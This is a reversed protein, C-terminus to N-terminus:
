TKTFSCSQQRDVNASHACEPAPREFEPKRARPMRAASATLRTAELPCGRRSTRPELSGGRQGKEAEAAVGPRAASNRSSTRCGASGPEDDSTSRRAAASSMGAPRAHWGADLPRSCTAPARAPTSAAPDRGSGRHRNAGGAVRVQQPMQRIRREHEPRLAVRVPESPGATATTPDRAAVGAPSAIARVSPARGRRARSQDHHAPQRSADVGGRM